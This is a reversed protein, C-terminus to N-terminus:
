SSRWERRFLDGLQARQRVTKLESDQVRRAAFSRDRRGLALPDFARFRGGVRLQNDRRIALLEIRAVFLVDPRRGVVPRKEKVGGLEPILELDCKSSRHQESIAQARQQRQHPDRGRQDAREDETREEHGAAVPRGAPDSPQEVEPREAGAEHEDLDRHQLAEHQQEAV